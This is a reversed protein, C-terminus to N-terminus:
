NNQGSLKCSLSILLAPHHSDTAVIPVSVCAIECHFNALVLDLIRNNANHIFNLQELSFFNFMENLSQIINSTDSTAIYQAYKSINFDGM